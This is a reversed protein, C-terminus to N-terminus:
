FVPIMILSSAQQNDLSQIIEYMVVLPLAALVDTTM